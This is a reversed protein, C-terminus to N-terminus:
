EEEKDHAEFVYSKASLLKGLKQQKAKRINEYVKQERIEQQESEGESM